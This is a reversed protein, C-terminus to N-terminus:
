QIQNRRLFRVAKRGPIPVAYRRPQHHRRTYRGAQCTRKYQEPWERRFRRVADYAIIDSLDPPTRKM